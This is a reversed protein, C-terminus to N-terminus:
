FALISDQISGEHQYHRQPPDLTAKGVILIINMINFYLVQNEPAELEQSYLLRWYEFHEWDACGAIM